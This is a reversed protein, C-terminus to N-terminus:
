IAYGNYYMELNYRFLFQMFFLNKFFFKLFLFFINDEHIYIYIYM